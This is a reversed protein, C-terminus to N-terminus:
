KTEGKKWEEEYFRDILTATEEDSLGLSRCYVLMMSIQFVRDSIATTEKPTFLEGRVKWWVDGMATSNPM